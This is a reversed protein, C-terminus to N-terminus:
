WTFEALRVWLTEDHIMKLYKKVWTYELNQSTIPYNCISIRQVSDEDFILNRISEKELRNFFVPNLDFCKKPIVTRAYWYNVGKSSMIIERQLVQKDQIQLLYKDWWTPHIWNQFMLELETTGIASNLKDTLPGDHEIWVKFSEPTKSEASFIPQKNIYMPTM